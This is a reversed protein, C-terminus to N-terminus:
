KLKFGKIGGDLVLVNIVTVLLSIPGGLSLFLSAIVDSVYLEQAISPYESQFHYFALGYTLFSCILWFIILLITM